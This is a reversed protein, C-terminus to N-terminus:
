SPFSWYRLTMILCVVLHQSYHPVFHSSAIFVSLTFRDAKNERWFSISQFLLILVSAKNASDMHHPTLMNIRVIFKGQYIIWLPLTIWWWLENWNVIADSGPDLCEALTQHPCGLRFSSLGPKLAAKMTWICGICLKDILGAKSTGKLIWTTKNVWMKFIGQQSLNHHYLAQPFIETM